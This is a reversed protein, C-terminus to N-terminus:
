ECNNILIRSSIYYYLRLSRQKLFLATSSFFLFSSSSFLLYIEQFSLYPNNISLGLALDVCDKVRTKFILLLRDTSGNNGCGRQRSDANIGALAKSEIERERGGSSSAVGGRNSNHRPAAHLFTACFACCIRAQKVEEPDPPNARANEAHVPLERRHSIPWGPFIIRSSHALDQFPSPWNGGSLSLSLSM